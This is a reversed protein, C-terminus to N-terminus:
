AATELAELAQLGAVLRVQYSLFAILQSLAVVAPTSLGVAPLTQLAAEDGAIPREILTRTYALIACLRPDAIAHDIAEASASDVAAVQARDADTADLQTRYHAALAPAPTLRCAYLAVLLREALSLGELAPDFLADYSGQTAAAVKDRQHRLTHTPTGAVLGAVRDVLDDAIEYPATLHM